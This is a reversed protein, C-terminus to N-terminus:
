LNINDVSNIEEIKNEEELCEEDEELMDEKLMSNEKLVTLKDLFGAIIFGIAIVVFILALIFFGNAYNGNIIYNYADGGVYSNKDLSSYDSSHYYNVIKDYGLYVMISAICFAFFSFWNWVVQKSHKM